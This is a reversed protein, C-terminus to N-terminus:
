CNYFIYRPATASRLAVKFGGNGCASVGEDSALNRLWLRVVSPLAAYGIQSTAVMGGLAKARRCHRGLKGLLQAQCMLEDVDVVRGSIGSNSFDDDRGMAMVM